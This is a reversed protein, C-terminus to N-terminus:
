EQLGFHGAIRGRNFGEEVLLAGSGLLFDVRELLQEVVLEIARFEERFVHFEFRFEFSDLFGPRGDVFHERVIEIHEFANLMFEFSVDFLANTEVFDDFFEIVIWLLVGGRTVVVVFVVAAALLPGVLLDFRNLILM